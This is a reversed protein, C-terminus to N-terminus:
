RQNMETSAPLDPIVKGTMRELYPVRTMSNSMSFTTSFMLMFTMMM